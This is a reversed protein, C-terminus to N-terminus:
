TIEKELGTHEAAKKAKALEEPTLETKFINLAKTKRYRSRLLLGIIGTGGIGGTVTSILGKTWEIGVGIHEEVGQRGQMRAWQQMMTEAAGPQIDTVNKSGKYMIKAFALATKKDVDKNVLSILKANFDKNIEKLHSLESDKLHTDVDPVLVRSLMSACGGSLFLAVVVIVFPVVLFLKRM